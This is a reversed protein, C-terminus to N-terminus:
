DREFDYVTRSVGKLSRIAVRLETKVLYIERELEDLRDFQTNLILTIWKIRDLAMVLRASGRQCKICELTM